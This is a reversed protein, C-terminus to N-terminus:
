ASATAQERPVVPRETAALIRRKAEDQQGSICKAYIRLLIAV